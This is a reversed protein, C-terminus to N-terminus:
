TAVEAGWYWRPMGRRGVILFVGVVLLALGALIGILKVIDIIFDVLAVRLVFLLLAGVAVFLVGFIQSDRM